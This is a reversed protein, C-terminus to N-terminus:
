ITFGNRKIKKTIDKGTKEKWKNIKGLYNSLNCKLSFNKLKYQYTACVGQPDQIIVKGELGNNHLLFTM